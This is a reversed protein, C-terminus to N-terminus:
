TNAHQRLITWDGEDLGWNKGRETSEQALIKSLNGKLTRDAETDVSEGQLYTVITRLAKEEYDPDSRRDGGAELPAPSVISDILTSIINHYSLAARTLDATDMGLPTGSSTLTGNESVLLANLLFAVKRRVIFTNDSLCARLTEWGRAKGFETVADRNHKLAGSICSMAKSRAEASSSKVAGILRPFPEYKLFASQSSPNNQIATSIVWLAQASIAASSSAALSLIPEWMKLVVMDNANDLSEILMEFDDLAQIRADEPLSDDTAISLAEKMKVADPKGLIMDIIAPDLKGTPQPPDNSDQPTNQTAWNLLSSMGPKTAM